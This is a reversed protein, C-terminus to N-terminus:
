RSINDLWYERVQSYGECPTGKMYEAKGLAVGMVETNTWGIGRHGTGYWEFEFGMYRFFQKSYSDKAPLIELGWERESCDTGESRTRPRRSYIGATLPIEGQSTFAKIMSYPITQLNQEEPNITFAFYKYDKGKGKSALKIDVILYRQPKRDVPIGNADYGIRKEIRYDTK